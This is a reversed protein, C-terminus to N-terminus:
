PKFVFDYGLYEGGDAYAVVVWAEPDFALPYAEREAGAIAESGEAKAVAAEAASIGPLTCYPEDVVQRVAAKNAGAPLALLATMQGRSIEGTPKVKKECSSFDISESDVRMPVVALLSLAIAGIGIWATKKSFLSRFRSIFAAEPSHMSHSKQTQSQPSNALQASPYRATSPQSAQRNAQLPYSAM